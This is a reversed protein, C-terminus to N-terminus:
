ILSRIRTEAARIDNNVASIKYDLENVKRNLADVSVISATHRREIDRKQYELHNLDATARRFEENNQGRSSINRLRAIESSIRSIDSRLTHMEINRLERERKANALQQKHGDMNRRMNRVDDQLRQVERQREQVPKAMTPPSPSVPSSSINEWHHHQASHNVFLHLRDFYVKLAPQQDYITELSM